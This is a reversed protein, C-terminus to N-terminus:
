SAQRLLVIAATNSAVVRLQARAPIMGLDELGDRLIRKMQRWRWKTLEESIGIAKAIQGYTRGLFVGHLIDVGREAALLAM